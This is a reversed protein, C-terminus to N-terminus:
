ERGQTENNIPFEKDVAKMAAEATHWTRRTGTQSFRKKLPEGGLPCADWQTTRLRGDKFLVRGGRVQFGDTRTFVGHNRDADTCAWDTPESM